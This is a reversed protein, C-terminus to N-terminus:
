IPGDRRMRRQAEFKPSGPWGNFWLGWQSGLGEMSASGRLAGGMPEHRLRDSERRGGEGQSCRLLTRPDGCGDLLDRAWCGLIGRFRRLRAHGLPLLALAAITRSNAAWCRLVAM